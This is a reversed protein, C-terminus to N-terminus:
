KTQEDYIYALISLSANRIHLFVLNLDVFRGRLLQNKLFFFIDIHLPKNM